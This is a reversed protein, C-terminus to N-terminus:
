PRFKRRIWLTALWGQCTLGLLGLLTILTSKKDNVATTIFCGGGGGGGGGGSNSSSPGAPDVIIGNAVGDTDGYGGDKLQIVASKRDASFTVHNTYDQWGNIENYTYWKPVEELATEFYVRVQATAGPTPVTIRFNILGFPLSGPRNVTDAITDPDIACTTEISNVNVDKKVGIKSNGVLTNVCKIDTQNNDPTGNGDLDVSSDVEQSDPVGDDDTDDTATKTTFATASGWDSAASRTDIHIARWYYTRGAKVISRPLKVRTLHDASTFNFLVTDFGSSDSLQWRTKLHAAGVDIDSFAGTELIPQLDVGSRGAAPATGVPADPSRNVPTASCPTAYGSDGAANYSRLRYFYATGEILETDTYRTIDAALSAIESYTGDSGTKRELKFGTENIAKDTWTLNLQDHAGVSGSLGEPSLPISPAITDLAADVQVRPKSDTQGICRTTIEVGSTAVANLMETVSPDANKQRLVAWVGAAHPAAMSTGSKDGFATDSNGIASQIHYGPAFLDVLDNHWNSFYVEEDEDSSAGVAIASSICGPAGIGDCYESNGSAIITAIGAARLNDIAAKTGDNDADCVNQNNYHGGGLSMNVSAINYTTRLQYVHELGKIQDSTYSLLCDGGNCYEHNDFRSFVQVGILDADKAVGFLSGYNGAAIGAVHTGHDWGGYTDPHLAASGTGTQETGGLPCDGLRSFCAEVITKGDFFNHTRLIGTDLIAVYVGKGTYGKAWSETGGIIGVTDDLLPPVPVDAVIRLVDDAQALDVLAEPTVSAALFPITQFRHAVRYSDAKLGGLVRDAAAEIRSALAHDAAARATQYAATPLIRNFSRSASTLTKVDPVEFHVLVPVRGHDMATTMLRDFGVVKQTFEPDQAIAPFSGPLIWFILTLLAACCRRLRFNREAYVSPASFLHHFSFRHVM